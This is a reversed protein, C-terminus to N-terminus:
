RKILSYIIEAQKDSYAAVHDAKLEAKMHQRMIHYRITNPAVGATKAMHNVTNLLKM